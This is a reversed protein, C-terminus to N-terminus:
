KFIIDLMQTLRHTYTHEQLTRSLSSAAIKMREDEHTLYYDIQSKLEEVSDYTAIEYGPIYQNELDQRVDTLQLTKCSSIEFTRPNLSHAPIKESNFNISDDYIDRHLNIVIKAGNYYSATEEPSMWHGLRIKSKLKKYNELRDWWWGSIIINKDVLYDAISDILKVRNWFATGIFCIDSQFSNKVRKPYFVQTNSAFPLYHVQTCGLKQYYSVCNLELTFVYDYRPAISITWDTYYPDDTLWVATKIGKERIKVVQDSSFVVGNLVLVLDPHVKEVLHVVDESPSAVIVEQVLQRLTDIIAQDLAPYPVDIGATVYLIKLNRKDADIFSQRVITDNRGAQYGQNRGQAYGDRRGKIRGQLATLQKIRRKRTIKKPM